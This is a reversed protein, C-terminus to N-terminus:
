PILYTPRFVRYAKGVKLFEDGALEPFKAIAKASDFSKRGACDSHSVRVIGPVTFKTVGGSLEILEAKATDFDEEARDKAEAAMKLRMGADLAEPMSLIRPQDDDPRVAPAGPPMEGKQICDWFNQEIEMLYAITDDDRTVTRPVGSLRNMADFFFIHWITDGTIAMTHQGQLSYHDPVVDSKRYQGVNRPCKVDVPQWVGDVEAWADPLAHAWPYKPNYLFDNQDHKRVKWETLDAFHKIAWDEEEEGRIVDPNDSLDPPPRRGMLVEAYTSSDEFPNLNACTAAHSAGITEFHEKLWEASKM